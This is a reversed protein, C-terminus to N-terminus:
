WKRLKPYDVNLRLQDSWTITTLIGSLGLGGFTCLLLISHREHARATDYITLLILSLAAELSVLVAVSSMVKRWRADQTLAYGSPAYRIHNVSWITGFYTLATLTCGTVFVPKYKFAAIDSIFAVYPNGQGPYIPRGHALWHILLISLTIGWAGGSTLPLVWGHRVFNVRMELFGTKGENGVPLYQAFFAVRIERHNQVRSVTRFRPMTSASYFDTPSFSRRISEQKERSLM